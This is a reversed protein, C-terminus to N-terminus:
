WKMIMIENENDNDYKKMEDDNWEEKMVIM